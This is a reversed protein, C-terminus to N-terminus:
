IYKQIYGMCYKEIQLESKNDIHKKSEKDFLISKEFDMALNLRSPAVKTWFIKSFFFFYLTSITDKKNYAVQAIWLCAYGRNAITETDNGRMLIDSSVCYCFLADDCRKLLELCKGVNGYFHGSLEYNINDRKLVEDLSTTGLFFHLAKNINTEINSDRLALAYNYRLQNSDELASSELLYIGDEAVKIAGLMLGQYWLLHTKSSCYGM